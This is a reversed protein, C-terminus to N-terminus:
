RGNSGIPPLGNNKNNEETRINMSPPLENKNNKIENKNDQKSNAIEPLANNNNNNNDEDNNKLPEVKKNNNEKVISAKGYEPFINSPFNKDDPYLTTGDSLTIPIDNSIPIIENTKTIVVPKQIESDIKWGVLDTVKYSLVNGSEYEIMVLGQDKYYTKKVPKQKTYDYIQGNPRFTSDLKKVEIKNELKTFNTRKSNSTNIAQKFDDPLKSKLESMKEQTINEKKSTFFQINKLKTKWVYWGGFSVLLVLAIATTEVYLQNKLFPIKKKDSLNFLIKAVAEQAFENNPDLRLSMRLEKEAYDRWGKENYSIALHVRYLSKHPSLYVCEKFFRIASDIDKAKFNRLGEKFITDVGSNNPVKDPFVMQDYNLREIPDTLVEYAKTLIYLEEASNKRVKIDENEIDIKEECLREFARQIEITTAYHSVELIEYYGKEVFKKTKAKVVM